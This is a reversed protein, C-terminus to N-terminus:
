KLVKWFIYIFKIRVMETCSSWTPMRQIENWKIKIPNMKWNLRVMFVMVYSWSIRFLSFSVIKHFIWNWFALIFKGMDREINFFIVTTSGRELKCGSVLCLIYWISNVWYSFWIHKTFYSEFRKLNLCWSESIREFMVQNSENYM